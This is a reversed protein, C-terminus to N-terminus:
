GLTGCAPAERHRLVFLERISAPRIQRRTADHLGDLSLCRPMAIEDSGTPIHSVFHQHRVDLVLVDVSLVLVEFNAFLPRYPAALHGETSM